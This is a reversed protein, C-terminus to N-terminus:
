VINKNNNWILINMKHESPLTKKILSYGTREKILNILKSKGSNSKLSRNEYCIAGLLLDCLQILVIQNSVVEQVSKVIEKKYDYNENCLFEHLKEIKNKGNTDKKDLYIKYTQDTHLLERILLFIVEYYFEDHSVELQGHELKTKDIIVCRFGLHENDFYYQLVDIYFDVKSPSVKSWKIEFDKSLGHKLKLSQIDKVIQDKFSTICTVAGLGM